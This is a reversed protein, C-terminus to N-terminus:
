EFRKLWQVLDGMEEACSGHEMRYSKFAADIKAADVGAREAKKAVILEYSEKGSEFPVMPDQTGHAMFLPTEANSNSWWKDLDSRATLYGSCAIVGGLKEPFTHAAMLSLAAGQSFGGIIVKDAGVTEAEMAALAHIFVSSDLIGNAEEKLRDRDLGAIDYWAPMAMGGNLTVPISRATPFIFKIGPVHPAVEYQFGQAWGAGTDGLGHSFIVTAKHDKKPMIPIVGMSNRQWAAIVAGRVQLTPADDDPYLRLKNALGVLNKRFQPQQMKQTSITHRSGIVEVRLVGFGQM